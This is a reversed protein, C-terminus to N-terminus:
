GDASEMLRLFRGDGHPWSPPPSQLRGPECFYSVGARRLLPRVVELRKAPDAMACGELMAPASNLRQALEDATEFVSVGVSRRLPSPQFDADPDFIVTWGLDKGEWLEVPAGGIRRWRTNERLSRAAAIEDMPPNHGPPMAVAAADLEVALAQAFDRASADPGEVMIHHLSLCGRQDFFSIDRALASAIQRGRAGAIAEGALIAASIRSGFGIVKPGAIAALAAITEDEGFAVIRDCAAAMARTSEYDSRDWVAVSMRSAVAPDISQLTRQFEAFFLPEFSSAKLMVAAGASLAQVVEHLGAGMVNGPMIFGILRERTSLRPALDTLAEPTFGALLADLSADLTALSHAGSSVAAALTAARASFSHDRWQGCAHSLAAAISQPSLRESAAERLRAAIADIAPSDVRVGARERTLSLTPFEAEMEQQAQKGIASANGSADGVAEGEGQDPLSSLITGPKIRPRSSANPRALRHDDATGERRGEKGEGQGPLPHPHPDLRAAFEEIGLACGRPDASLYRGFVRVSGDANVVGVDETLLASVSGANALDFFSLLGAEGPPLPLLNKPDRAIVKLWPPAIKVRELSNASAHPHNVSTADYLQSCLETMGYENIVWEPRIALYEQAMALIEGLALPHAQGKAGGTDMLRSGSALNFRVGSVRLHEFLTAVAATTALICVPEAGAQADRLFSVAADTDVKQPTACCLAKGGGFMEICWSIMQSLSSEPMRDATPHLALMWPRCRDPLLMRALHKLASARYLALDPVLHRGRQDRGRTTGSTMFVRRPSGSCFAVYKFAATSVPPIEAIRRISVPSAGHDLVFRRYPVISDFQHAFVALALQELRSVDPNEMFNLIQAAIIM